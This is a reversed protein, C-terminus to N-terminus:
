QTETRDMITGDQRLEYCTSNATYMQFCPPDAWTETAIAVVITSDTHGSYKGPYLIVQIYSM